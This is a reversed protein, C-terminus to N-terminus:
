KILKYTIKRNISQHNIEFEDLDNYRIKNYILSVEIGLFRSADKVSNFRKILIGNEYAEIPNGPRKQKTNNFLYDVKSFPMEIEAGMYNNKLALYVDIYYSIRHEKYGLKKAIVSSRNDNNSKFYDIIDLYENHKFYTKRKM